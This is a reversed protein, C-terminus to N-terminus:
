GVAVNDTGGLMGEVFEGVAGLWEEILAGLETVFAVAELLVEALVAVENVAEAAAVALEQCGLVPEAGEAGPRVPRIAVGRARGCEDVGGTVEVAGAAVECKEGFREGGPNLFVVERGLARCSRHLRDHLM